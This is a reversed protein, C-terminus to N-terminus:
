DRDGRRGNKGGEFFRPNTKGHFDRKEQPLDPALNTLASVLFILGGAASFAAVLRKGTTGFWVRLYQFGRSVESIKNEIARGEGINAM